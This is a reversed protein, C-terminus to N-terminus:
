QRAVPAFTATPTIEAIYRKAVAAGTARMSPTPPVGPANGWAKYKIRRCRASSAPASGVRKSHNRIKGRPNHFVSLGVKQRFTFLCFLLFLLFRLSSPAARYGRSIDGSNSLGVEANEPVM